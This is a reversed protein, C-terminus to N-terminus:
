MWRRPGRPIQQLGLYIIGATMIPLAMMTRAPWFRSTLIVFIFPSVISGLLLVTTLVQVRSEPIQRISRLIFLVSLGLIGGTLYGVYWRHGILQAFVEKIVFLPDYSSIFSGSYFQEITHYRGDIQLTTRIWFSIVEHAAVAVLLAAFFVILNIISKRVAVSHSNKRYLYQSLIYALYVAPAAFIVSQYISLAGVWLALAFLMNVKRNEARIFVWVGIVALLMGIYYGYQSQNFAYVFAITPHALAFIAAAYKANGQKLSWIDLCVLWALLNAIIGVLMNIYPLPPGDQLLWNLVYMGWRDMHLWARLPKESLSAIEEDVSISVNLIEFAFAVLSIGLCYLIFLHNQKVYSLLNYLPPSHM